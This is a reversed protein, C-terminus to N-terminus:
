RGAPEAPPDTEGPLCKKSMAVGPLSQNYRLRMLSVAAVVVLPRTRVRHPWGLRPPLHGSFMRIRGNVIRQTAQENTLFFAPEGAEIRSAIPNDSRFVALRADQVADTM